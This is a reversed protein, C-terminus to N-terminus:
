RRKILKAGLKMSLALWDVWEPTSEQKRREMCAKKFEETEMECIEGLNSLSRVLADLNKSKIEVDILLCDVSNLTRQLRLLTKVIFFALIAFILVALAVSVEIIM